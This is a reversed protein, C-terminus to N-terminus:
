FLLPKKALLPKTNTSTITAYGSSIRLSRLRLPHFPQDETPPPEPDKTQSAWLAGSNALICILQLVRYLLRM